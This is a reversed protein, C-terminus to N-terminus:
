DKAKRRPRRLRNTEPGDRLAKPAASKLGAAIIAIHDLTIKTEAREVRAIFSRPLGCIEALQEQSLLRESRLIRLRRGFWVMPSPM